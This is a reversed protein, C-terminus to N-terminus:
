YPIQSYAASPLFFNALTFVLIIAITTTATNSTPGARNVIEKQFCITM